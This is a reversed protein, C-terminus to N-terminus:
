TSSREFMTTGKVSKQPPITYEDTFPSVITTEDERWDITSRAGDLEVTSTGRSISSAEPTATRQQVVTSGRTSAFSSVFTTSVQGESAETSLPITVVDIISPSSTIPLDTKPSAYPLVTTEEKIEEDTDTVSYHLLRSHASTEHQNGTSPDAETFTVDPITTAKETAYPEDRAISSVVTISTNEPSDDMWHKPTGALIESPVTNSEELPLFPSVAAITTAKKLRHVTTIEDQVNRSPVPTPLTSDPMTTSAISHEDTSRGIQGDAKAAPTDLPTTSEILAPKETFAVNPTTTITTKQSLTGSVSTLTQVTGDDLTYAAKTNDDTLAHTSTSSLPDIGAETVTYDPFSTPITAYQGDGLTDPVSFHAEQLTESTPLDTIDDLTTTEDIRPISADSPFYSHSPFTEPPITPTVTGPTPESPSKTEEIVDLPKEKTSIKVVTVTQGSNILPVGSGGSEQEELDMSYDNEFGM